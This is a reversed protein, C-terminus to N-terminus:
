GKSDANVASRVSGKEGGSTREESGLEVGTPHHSHCIRAWIRVLGLKEYCVALLRMQIALVGDEALDNIARVRSQVGHFPHWDVVFVPRQTLNVQGVYTGM